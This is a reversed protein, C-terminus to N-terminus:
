PRIKANVYGLKRVHRVAADRDPARFFLEAWDASYVDAYARWLPEGAGWYAGGNDYGGADLRVRAVSMRGTVDAPQDAHTSRRGMDAGYQSCGNSFKYEAM